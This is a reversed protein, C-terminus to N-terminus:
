EKKLWIEVNDAWPTWSLIITLPFLSLKLFTKHFLRSNVGLIKKQRFRNLWYDFTVLSFGPLSQFRRKFIKLGVKKVFAELVKYSFLFLHRPTDIQVYNSGFIKYGIANINPVGIIITGEVKLIRKLERLTNTPDHLHEFVHNLTIVDFYEESFKAEELSGQFVNLGSMKAKSVAIESFDVGYVEMGYKEMKKLFSGAGCGVDLLRAGPKILAGRVLPRLPSFISKLFWSPNVDYNISELKEIWQDTFSRSDSDEYPRYDQPYYKVIEREDPQPQIFILGCSCKWLSFDGPVGHM